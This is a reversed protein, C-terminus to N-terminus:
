KKETLKKLVISKLYGSDLLCCHMSGKGKSNIVKMCIDLFDRKANINRDKKLKKFDNTTTPLDNVVRPLQRKPLALAASSSCWLIMMAKSAKRIKKKMGKLYDDEPDKIDNIDEQQILAMNM